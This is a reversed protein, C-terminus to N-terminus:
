KELLMKLFQQIAQPSIRCLEQLQTVAGHEIFQDPIGLRHVPLQYDHTTVFEAVASGLGGEITADELTIVVRHQKCITHLLAEDLPKICGFHYLSVKEKSDFDALAALANNGIFGTSILAIDSGQQLVKGKKYDIKQFPIEWDLGVGRGRPYRIAIPNELGLSATYLLQRLEVEDLPAVIEMNPVCRLYALDFVGHHTAGDEGVLGARDLCFIVPLKQLAV